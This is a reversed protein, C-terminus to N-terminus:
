PSPPLADAANQARAVLDVGLEVVLDDGDRRGRGRVAAGILALTADRHRQVGTTM